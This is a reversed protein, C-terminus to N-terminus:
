AGVAHWWMFPTLQPLVRPTVVLFRSVELYSVLSGLLLATVALVILIAIGTVNDM